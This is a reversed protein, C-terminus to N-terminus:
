AVRCAAAQAQWCRVHGFGEADDSAVAFEREEQSARRALLSDMGNRSREFTLGAGVDGLGSVFRPMVRATM